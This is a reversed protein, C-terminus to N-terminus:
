KGLLEKVIKQISKIEKALKHQSSSKPTFIISPPNYLNAFFDIWPALLENTLYNGTEPEYIFRVISIKNKLLQLCEPTAKNLTNHIYIDLSYKIYPFMMKKIINFYKLSDTNDLFPVRLQMNMIIKYKELLPYIKKIFLLEKEVNDINFEMTFSTSKYKKTVESLIDDLKDIFKFQLQTSQTSINQVLSKDMLGIINMRGHLNNYELDDYSIEFCSFFDKPINSFISDDYSKTGLLGYSIGYDLPSRNMKAYSASDLKEVSM